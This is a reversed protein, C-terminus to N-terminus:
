LQFDGGVEHSEFVDKRVKTHNSLSSMIFLLFYLSTTYASLLQRPELIDFMPCSYTHLYLLLFTKKRCLSALANQQLNKKFM